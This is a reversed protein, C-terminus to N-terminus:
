PDIHLPENWNTVSGISVIAHPDFTLLSCWLLQFSFTQLTAVKLVESGIMRCAEAIRFCPELKSVALLKRDIPATPELVFTTTTKGASMM